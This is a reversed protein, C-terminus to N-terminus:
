QAAPKLKCASEPRDFGLTDLTTNEHLFGEQPSVSVITRAGALMVPQRLQGDWDRFTLAQGKFGAVGFQPSRIYANVSAYDTKNTRTTAESVSRVALWAAYDRDTMWRGSFKTFRNQMQTAGWQEQSRHWATPVLGQTGVVPRPDWTRYQLYEGFVDSEDSVVLVDYDDVGQTFIPIQKQIQAFGTDTRRAGPAAEFVREEVITAGFRTASRRLAAAFQKDADGTGAVLFWNQWHKWALYQALGDALIAYNPMTHLVNARCQEARLADDKAQANFILADRAEPVDAIALLQAAPLDAVVFRDGKALLQRFAAVVDGGEPVVAEDLTFNQKTFQGTTNNDAIGVRAGMLGNDTTPSDVLSLPPLQKVIQTIYAIPITTADPSAQQAFAALPLVLALIAALGLCIQRLRRLWAEM